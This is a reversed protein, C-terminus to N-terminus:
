ISQVQCHPKKKESIFSFRERFCKEKGAITFIATVEVPASSAPLGGNTLHRARHSARHTKLFESVTSYILEPREQSLLM